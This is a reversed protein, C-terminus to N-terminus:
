EMSLQYGSFPGGDTPLIKMGIIIFNIRLILPKQEPKTCHPECTTCNEYKAQSNNLISPIVLNCGEAKFCCGEGSYCKRPKKAAEVANAVFLSVVTLIMLNGMPM